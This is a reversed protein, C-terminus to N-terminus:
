HSNEQVLRRLNLWLFFGFVNFSKTFVQAIFKYLFFYFFYPLADLIFCSCLDWILGMESILPVQNINMLQM